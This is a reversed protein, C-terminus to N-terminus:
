NYERELQMFYMFDSNPYIIRRRVAHVRRNEGIAPKAAPINCHQNSIAFGTPGLKAINIWMLPFM